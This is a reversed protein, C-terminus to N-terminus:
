MLVECHSANWWQDKDDTVELIPRNCLIAKGQRHKPPHLPCSSSPGHRHGATPLLLVQQPRSDEQSPTVVGRLM